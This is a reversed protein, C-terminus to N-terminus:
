YYVIDMRDVYKFKLSEKLVNKFGKYYMYLYRERVKCKLFSLFFVFLYGVRELIVVLFLFERDKIILCM